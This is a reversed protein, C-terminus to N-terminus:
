RKKLSVFFGALTFVMFSVPEPVPTVTFTCNSASSDFVVSGPNAANDYETGDALAGYFLNGGDDCITYTASGAALAKINFTFIDSFGGVGIYSPNGVIRQNVVVQRVEGTVPSNVTGDNWGSWTPDPDPALLTINAITGTKTIEIIGTNDVSLDTQWTDLGNDPEANVDDVWASVTVTVEDGVTLATKPATMKFHLIGAFASNVSFLILVAVLPLCVSEIPHIKNM